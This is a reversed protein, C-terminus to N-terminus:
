RTEQSGVKEVRPREEKHRTDQAKKIKIKMGMLEFGFSFRNSRVM